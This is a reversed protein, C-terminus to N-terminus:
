EGLLLLLGSVGIIVLLFLLRPRQIVFFRLLVQLQHMSQSVVEIVFPLVESRSTTYSM